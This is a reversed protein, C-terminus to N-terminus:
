YDPPAPPADRMVTETPASRSAALLTRLSSTMFDCVLRVISDVDEDDIAALTRLRVRTSRALDSRIHTLWRHVTVRHVRYIEAISALPLEDVYAFRVLTASRPPLAAVSEAFARKFAPGYRHRLACIFPGDSPCMIQEFLLADEAVAERQRARTADLFARTLVAALWSRLKTRGAFQEIAPRHGTRGVFIRERVAQVVEKEEDGGLRFRAAIVVAVQLLLEDVEAVANPDGRACQWARKLDQADLQALATALQDRQGIRDCAYQIFSSPSDQSKLAARDLLGALAVVVPRRDTVQLCRVVALSEILAVQATCPTFVFAPYCMEMWEISLFPAVFNAM